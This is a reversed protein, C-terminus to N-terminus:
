YIKSLISKIEKLRLRSDELRALFVHLNESDATSVKKKYFKINEVCRYYEQDTQYILKENSVQLKSSKHLHWIIHLASVFLSIHEFVPEKTYKDVVMYNNKEVPHLEWRNFFVISNECDQASAIMGMINKPMADDLLQSVKFSLRTAEKKDVSYDTFSQNLKIM